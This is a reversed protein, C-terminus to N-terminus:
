YCTLHRGDIGTCECDVYDVPNSWVGRVCEVVERASDCDRDGEDDCPDGVEPPACGFLPLLVLMFAVGLQFSFVSFRFSM